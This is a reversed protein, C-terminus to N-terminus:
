RSFLAVTRGYAIVHDRADMAYVTFRYHHASGPPPCAPKWTTAHVLKADRPISTASADVDKIVWHTFTGGPADPDDVVVTLSDAGSPVGSWRLEPAHGGGACTYEAPLTGGDAFAPSTVQMTRPATAGASPRPSSSGCAAVLLVASYASFRGISSM